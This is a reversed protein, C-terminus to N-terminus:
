KLKRYIGRKIGTIHITTSSMWKRDCNKSRVQKTPIFDKQINKLNTVIIISKMWIVVSAWVITVDWGQKTVGVGSRM